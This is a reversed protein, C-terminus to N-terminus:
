ANEPRELDIMAWVFEGALRALKADPLVYEKMSMCTHCWPAWVDVFLPRGSARALGLAAPYDDHVFAIGNALPTHAGGDAVVDSRASAAQAPGSTASGRSCAAVLFGFLLPAARM